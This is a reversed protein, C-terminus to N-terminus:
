VPKNRNAPDSRWKIAMAILRPIGFLLIFAHDLPHVYITGAMKCAWVNAYLVAIATIMLLAVVLLPHARVYHAALFPASLCLFLGGLSAGFLKGEPDPGFLGLLGFSAALATLVWSLTIFWPQDPSTRASVLLSLALLGIFIYIRLTPNPGALLCASLGTLIWLLRSIIKM